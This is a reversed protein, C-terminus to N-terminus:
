RIGPILLMAATRATIYTLASNPIRATIKEESEVAIIMYSIMSSSFLYTHPSSIHYSSANPRFYAQVGIRSDVLKQSDRKALHASYEPVVV